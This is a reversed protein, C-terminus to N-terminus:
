ISTASIEENTVVLLTDLPNLKEQDLVKTKKTQKTKLKFHFFRLWNEPVSFFLIPFVSSALSSM